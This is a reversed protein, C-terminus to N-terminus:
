TNCVKAVRGSNDKATLLKDVDQDVSIALKKADTFMRRKSLKEQLLAGILEYNDSIFTKTGDYNNDTVDLDLSPFQEYKESPFSFESEIINDNEKLIIIDGNALLRQIEEKTYGEVFGKRKPLYTMMKRAKAVNLSIRKYQRWCGLDTGKSQNSLIMNTDMNWISNYNRGYLRSIIELYDNSELIISYIQFMRKYFEEGSLEDPKTEILEKLNALHKKMEDRFLSLREKNTNCETLVATSLRIIENLEILM